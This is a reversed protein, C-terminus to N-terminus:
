AIASDARCELASASPCHSAGRRGARRKIAASARSDDRRRPQPFGPRQRLGGRDRDASRRGSNSGRACLRQDSEPRGSRSASCKRAGDGAGRRGAGTHDEGRLADHRSRRRDSAVADGARPRQVVFHHGWRHGRAPQGGGPISNAPQAFSGPIVDDGALSFNTVIAQLGIAFIGPSAPAANAAFPASSVKARASESLAGNDWNVVVDVTGASTDLLWPVQVNAQDFPQGFDDGDFLGFLAGPLGNFTVSFGNLNMSLPVTLAEASQDTFEGGIAVISGPSILDQFGAADFVGTVEHTVPPPGCRIGKGGGAGVPFLDPATWSVGGITLTGAYCGPELGPVILEATYVGPLSFEFEVNDELSVIEVQQGGATITLQPPQPVGLGTIGTALITEGPSAPDDETVPTRDLHYLDGEIAATPAFASVPFTFTDSQGGVTVRFEAPGLATEPPVRFFVRGSSFAVSLTQVGNVSITTGSDDALGEGFMQAWGGQAIDPQGSGITTFIVDAAAINDINPQAFVSATGSLLLVTLLLAKFAFSPQLTRRKM